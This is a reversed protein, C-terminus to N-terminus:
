SYKRTQGSGDTVPAPRPRLPAVQWPTETFPVCAEVRGPLVGYCGGESAPESGRQGHPVARKDSETMLMDEKSSGCAPYLKGTPSTLGGLALLFACSPFRLRTCSPHCCTTENTMSGRPSELGLLCPCGLLGSDRPTISM